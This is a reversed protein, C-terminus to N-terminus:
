KSVERWANFAIIAPDLTDMDLPDFYMLAKCVAEAKECRDTMAVLDTHIKENENILNDIVIRKNTEKVLEAIRKRAQDLEARLDEREEIVKAYSEGLLKLTMEELAKDLDGSM